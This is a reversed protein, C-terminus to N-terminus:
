QNAAIVTDYKNDSTLWVKQLLKKYLFQM